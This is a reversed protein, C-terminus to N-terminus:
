PSFGVIIGGCVVLGNCTGDQGPGGVAHCYQYAFINNVECINQLGMYLAHCVAIDGIGGLRCISAVRLQNAEIEGGFAVNTQNFCCTTTNCAPPSASIGTLNSGDGYFNTACVNTAGLVDGASNMCINGGYTVLCADMFVAIGNNIQSITAVNCIACCSMDINSGALILGGGANLTLCGTGADVEMNANSSCVGTAATFTTTTSNTVPPTASIGTLNSGDGYLPGNSVVCGTGHPTLTINQNTDLTTLGLAAGSAAQISTAGGICNSVMNLPSFLYTQGCLNITDITTSNLTIAQDNVINCVTTFDTTVTNCAPPSASIGTLNAGSGYYAGACVDNAGALIDANFNHECAEYSIAQGVSGVLRNLNLLDQDNMNLDTAGACNGCLLVGALNQAGGGGGIEMGCCFFGTNTCYAGQSNIVSGDDTQELAPLTNSIRM